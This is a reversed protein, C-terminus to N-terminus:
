KEDIPLSMFLMQDWFTGPLYILAPLVTLLAACRREPTLVVGSRRERRPKTIARGGM